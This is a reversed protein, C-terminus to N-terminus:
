EWKHPHLKKAAEAPTLKQVRARESARDIRDLSVTYVGVVWPILVALIFLFVVIVLTKIIITLAQSIWSTLSVPPQRRIPYSPTDQFDFPNPM